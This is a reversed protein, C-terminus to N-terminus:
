LNVRGQHETKSEQSETVMEKLYLSRPNNAKNQRIVYM